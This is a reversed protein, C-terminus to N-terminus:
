EQLQEDNPSYLDLTHHPAVEYWNPHPSKLVCFASLTPSFTNFSSGTHVAPPFTVWHEPPVSFLLAAGALMLFIIVVHDLLEM